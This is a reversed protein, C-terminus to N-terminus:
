PHHMVREVLHTFSPVDIPKYLVYDALDRIDETAMHPNATVVIVTPDNWLPLRHAQALFDSGDMIPMALDVILLDYQGDEVAAIAMAGNEAEAVQYGVHELAIRFIKRNHNNDDIVLSRM